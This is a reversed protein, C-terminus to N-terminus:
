DAELVAVYLRGGTLVRGAAHSVRAVHRHKVSKGAKIMVNQKSSDDDLVAQIYAALEDEQAVPDASELRWQDNIGDGKFIVAGDSGDAAITVVVSEETAVADGYRAAPLDVSAQKAISAAVLFFVLLLFTIDIMPTIDIGTDPAPMRRARIVLVDDIAGLEKPAELSERHQVM